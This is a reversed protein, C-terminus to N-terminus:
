LMKLDKTVLDIKESNEPGIAVCTTTPEKFVTKGADTIVATQLAQEQALNVFKYLEDLDKVKLCIKKMGQSKWLKVVKKKSKLVSDVSAHAVQVALKGKPMNLDQRVLIVQKIDFIKKFM